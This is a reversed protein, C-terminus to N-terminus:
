ELLAGYGSPAGKQKENEPVVKATYIDYEAISKVLKYGSLIHRIRFMVEPRTSAWGDYLPKYLDEVVIVDPHRGSYLGLFPDDVLRTDFNMEYLLAATGYILDNPGSVSRVFAVAQRQPVIYSRTAGRVVIGSVEVVVLMIVAAAIWARARVWGDWLFLITTALLAIYVPLIHVIYYSLKQNFISMAVFYCLFLALLLRVGLQNRLKRNSVCFVLAGLYAAGTYLKILAMGRTALGFVVFYRLTLESLLISLPNWNTPFRGNGGSAGNMGFQVTFAEKDQIIYVGWLAGFILYPLAAAGLSTIGTRKRDFWFICLWLALFHLIGNPHSMVSAAICANSVLFALPLSGNRLSLYSALGWLGFALCMMEPRSFAANDIFIFSTLLLGSALAPIDRRRFLQFMFLYFALAATAGWMIGFFRTGLVTHPFIMLWVGQGLLFLPMVWYTRQDIRM